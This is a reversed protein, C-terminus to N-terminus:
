RARAKANALLSELQALAAPDTLERRARAILEEQLSGLGGRTAAGALTVFAAPRRDVGLVVACLASADPGRGIAALAEVHMSAAALTSTRRVEFPDIGKSQPEPVPRGEKAAKEAEAATRALDEALARYRADFDALFNPRGALFEEFRRERFLSQAVMDSFSAALVEPAVDGKAKLARWTELQKEPTVLASNLAALDLALELQVDGEKPELLRAALADRRTVLERRVPKMRNAMQGLKYITAERRMQVFEPENAGNDWAWLYHEIAREHLLVDIYCDGLLARALASKPNDKVRARAPAMFDVHKLMPQMAAMLARPEVEGTWREVEAASANCLVVAGAGDVGLAGAVAPASALDLKVAVARAELWRVFVADQLVSAEFSRGAETRSDFFGLVLARKEERAALQAAEVPIPRYGQPPAQPAPAPSPDQTVALALALLAHHLMHRGLYGGSVVQTSLHVPRLPEEPRGPTSQPM